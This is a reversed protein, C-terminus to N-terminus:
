KEFPGRNEKTKKYGSGLMIYDISESHCQVVPCHLALFGVEASVVRKFFV